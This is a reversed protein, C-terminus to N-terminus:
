RCDRSGGAPVGALKGCPSKVNVSMPQVGPDVIMM